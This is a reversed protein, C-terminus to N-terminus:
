KNIWNVKIDQSSKDFRSILDEMELKLKNIETMDVIKNITNELITVKNKLEGIIINYKLINDMIDNQKCLVEAFTSYAKLDSNNNTTDSVLLNSNPFPKFQTGILLSWSPTYGTNKDRKLEITENSFWIGYPINTIYENVNTLEINQIIELQTNNTIYNTDVCDYLPIIINFLLNDSEIDSKILDGFSSNIYYINNEDFVPHIDKYNSPGIFQYSTDKMETEENIIEVENYWGYIYNTNYNYELLEKTNEVSQNISYIIKDNHEITCIFDTFTGNYNQETINGVFINSLINTLNNIYEEHKDQKDYKSKIFLNIADFLYKLYEIKNDIEKGENAYLLTDRLFALKNEYYGALYQKIFLEKDEKNNLEPINLCIFRSPFLKFNTALINGTLHETYNSFTIFNSEDGSSYFLNTKRKM